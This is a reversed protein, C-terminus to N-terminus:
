VKINLNLRTKPRNGWREMHVIEELSKKSVSPPREDSYGLAVLSVIILDDPISLTDKIQDVYGKKHGAVWCSKVGMGEAALIINMTAASGDELFYKTQHCLVVICCAADKIFKGHDTISAIRKLTENQTVVVFEWPQVNRATPAYRAANVIEKITEVDIPKAKFSRVSRRAKIM